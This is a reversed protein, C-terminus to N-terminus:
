RHIASLSLRGNQRPFFNGHFGFPIHHPCQARAIETMRAADLVLLFSTRSGADFVVSLLVGDEESSPSPGAVFVPEGPYCGANCWEICHGSTVDVKVLSDLFNGSEKTSSGWVVRYPRGATRAYDIRPLELPTPCIQQVRVSGANRLPMFYRWLLGVAKVPAGTRLRSLYLQDIIGPDPYTVLDLVLEGDQEFANVHHFAFAAESAATAVRRGTEKEVIHFRLGREPKWRYNRIFPAGSLLLRLPSVVFPFEALVLYRETMAFSHMYAPEDVPLEAIVTAKGDDDNIRFLRYCCRRGFRAVYSFQCGRAADHHPHAITIQGGLEADYDYDGLTELTEPDFSVPLMTETLAVPSGGFMNISVNCNDTPKSFFRSLVRGFLTQCPDSAFERRSLRGAELHSRYNESHLFRNAYAVHGGAFSFRHLMALGDFWHNLTQRGLDFRAPTTRLLTGTLWAPMTGIVPLRDVAVEDSLDAFGHVFLRTM